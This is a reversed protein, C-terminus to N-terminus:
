DGKPFAAERLKSNSPLVGQLAGSRPMPLQPGKALQKRTSRKGQTIDHREVPGGKNSLSTADEFVQSMTKRGFFSTTFCIDCCCCSNSM